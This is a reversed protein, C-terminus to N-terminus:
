DEGVVCRKIKLNTGYISNYEDLHRNLIKLILDQKAKEYKEQSFEMGIEISGVESDKVIEQIEDAVCM